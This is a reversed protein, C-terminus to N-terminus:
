TYRFALLSIIPSFYDRLARLSQDQTPKAWIIKVLSNINRLGETRVSVANTKKNYSYRDIERAVNYAVKHSSAKYKVTAGSELDSGGYFIGERYDVSFKNQAEFEPDEYYYVISIGGELTGGTGVYVEVQGEDDISYQGTGGPTGTGVDHAFVTTDGFLVEFGEYYLAGAALRFTVTSDTVDATTEVTTETDMTILGLFETKGDVFDVEEPDEDVYTRDFMDPSVRVTGKVVYDYSLTMADTATSVGATRTAFVGTLPDMRKFLASGVTDTGEKAQFAEPAIRVGYPRVSDEDYVVDFEDKSLEQGAQHNFTVRVSDSDFESNLWLLGNVADVMYGNSTTLLDARTSVETYSTGNSSSLVFSDGEINKAGLKMVKKNRPMLATRRASNRPHFAIDINEEDPDFLMGMKHYYGDAREEFLMREEDFVVTVKAGDALDDTFYIEAFDDSFAWEEAALAADDAQYTYKFGNVYVHMTEPDLGDDVPSFPLEFRNVTGTGTGIHLRKFRNGRRAIKPQIVFIDGRAPREPLSFNSPSKFRNAAKLLHEVERIGGVVPIFSTSNDLADDDRYMALRWLMSQENGEMIVSSGVGDDVNEADVWTEGGDFSVEMLADFLEPQPPWVDVAPITLYLGGPLQRETSNIGGAGSYKLQNVSLKAIGVAYRMRNTPAGNNSAVRVQYSHSQKFKVTVTKAYVPLFTLSWESDNGASKIVLRDEDVDGVLDAVHTTRGDSSFIIDEIEYSYAQGLNLPTVTLNNVIEAKPLEIVLSLSLPGSDLREYEFWNNPDGNVAYEPSINNTTVAEDSNGVQGNSGSGVVISRISLPVQSRVPLTLVGQATDVYCTDDSTFKNDLTDLNLFHESLVFKADENNWLALAARKQRIRKLKGLLDTLAYQQSNFHQVFLETLKRLKNTNVAALHLYMDYFERYNEYDPYDGAQIEQLKYDLALLREFLVVAEAEILAKREQTPAGERRQLFRRLLQSLAEVEALYSQNIASNVSM